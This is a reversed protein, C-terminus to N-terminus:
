KRGRGLARLAGERGTADRLRASLVRMVALGISGNDKVIHRFQEATLRYVTVDTACVASATRTAGDIVAIEGLVEARGLSNVVAGDVTVNVHGDVIVYLSDGHDGQNFMPMTARFSRQECAAAIPLLEMGPVDSFLEVDKLFDLRRGLEAAVGEREADPATAHPGCYALVADLWPDTRAGEVVSEEPLFPPAEGLGALRRGENVVATLAAEGVQRLMETSLRQIQRNAPVRAPYLRRFVRWYLEGIASSLPPHHAGAELAELGLRIAEKYALALPERLEQLDRRWEVSRARDVGTQVLRTQLADIVAETGFLQDLQARVESLAKQGLEVRQRLRRRGALHNEVDTMLETVTQYRDEPRKAMARFCCRELSEPVRRGPNRAAPAQLEANLVLHLTDQKTKGVFPRALTLMAYLLGGLAWIDTRQDYTTVDGIVQEPSMFGPTGSWFQSRAQLAGAEGMVYALGWDVVLVEGYHGILVNNPKLDCHVVHRDHAYIIAQCIEIFVTLLRDLDFRAEMEPDGKRLGQLAAGLTVGDLRKMVYYPGIADDYGLQYVPVINPHELGGTIIAEEIFARLLLPNNRHKEHLVKIAVSRRLDRDVGHFVYGAGGKGISPGLAFGPIGTDDLSPGDVDLGPSVTPEFEHREYFANLPTLTSRRVAGTHEARSVRRQMMAASSAGLDTSEEQLGDLDTASGVAMAELDLWEHDDVGGDGGEPGGEVGRLEAPYAGQLVDAVIREVLESASTGGGEVPEGSLTRAGYVAMVRCLESLRLRGQKLLTLSYQIADRSIAM